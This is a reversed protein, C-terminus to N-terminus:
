GLIGMARDYDDNASSPTGITRVMLYPLTMVTGHTMGRDDTPVFDIQLRTDDLWMLQYSVVDIGIRQGTSMFDDLEDYVKQAPHQQDICEKTYDEFLQKLEDSIKSM